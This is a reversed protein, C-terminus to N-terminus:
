YLSGLIMEDNGIREREFHLVLVKRRENTIVTHQPELGHMYWWGSRPAASAGM